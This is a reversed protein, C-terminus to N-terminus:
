ARPPAHIAVVLKITEDLLRQLCVLRDRRRFGGVADRERGHLGILRAQKRDDLGAQGTRTGAAVYYTRFAVAAARYGLHGAGHAEAESARAAVTLAAQAVHAGGAM